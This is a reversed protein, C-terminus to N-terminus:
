QDVSGAEVASGTQIESASMGPADLSDILDSTQSSAVGIRDQDARGGSRGADGSSDRASSTSGDGKSAFTQDPTSLDRLIEGTLPNVVIERRQEQRIATVRLRGLWTRKVSIADYGQEQLQSVIARKMKEDGTEASAPHSAILLLMWVAVFNSRM